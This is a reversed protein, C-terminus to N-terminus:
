KVIINDSEFRQRLESRNVTVVISYMLNGKGQFKDTGAKSQGKTTVYKRYAGGDAFFKDFYAEYKKRANPEDLVPFANCEGSGASIGTFVVDYVAKKRAQEVADSKNRGSAWVRLTQSGDMSKGLCETEYSHYTATSTVTEKSKCGALLLASIAMGYIINKMM